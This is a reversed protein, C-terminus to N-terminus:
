STFIENVSYLDSSIIDNIMDIEYLNTTNGIEDTNKNKIFHYFLKINKFENENLNNDQIFNSTIAEWYKERNHLFKNKGTSLLKLKKKKIHRVISCFKMLDELITLDLTSIKHLLYLSTELNEMSLVSNNNFFYYKYKRYKLKDKQTYFIYKLNESNYRDQEINLYTDSLYNPYNSKVDLNVYAM